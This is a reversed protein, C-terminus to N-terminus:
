RRRGGPTTSDGSHLGCALSGHSRLVVDGRRRGGRPGTPGRGHALGLGDRALRHRRRGPPLPLRHLVGRAHRGRHRRLGAGGPQRVPGPPRLGGRLTSCVTLPRAGTGALAPLNTADLGASWSVQVPGGDPGLGLVGPLEAHLRALLVSTLVHLPPGSLYAQAGPLVGRENEVVLTNSLKVGFRRGREEAHSQLAPILDLARDFALDAEFAAPDLRVDTYGLLDHLIRAATDHGLLTPNLKVVVDLDYVDTLHRTIAEVENPPCGHFTSVTVTTALRTEFPHDRMAGFPEPIEDRLRDIMDGADLMGRIFRDVEPSRIGALDYGVSIDFVSSGPDRGVVPWLEPWGGLLDLMMWAKVYEVLSEDLSLEQSWEVNYGEGAMDICPRDIDLEDLVQVTKCEFVRAGTLWALAYNEALQTHPGAAPGLPTAARRGGLEVGLDHVPDVHHFRGSPLDFIRHRTEWERAVRGLLVRLPYPRFPSRRFTSV